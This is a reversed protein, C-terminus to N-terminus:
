LDGGAVEGAGAMRAQPQECPVGRLGNGRTGKGDAFVAGPESVAPIQRLIDAFYETGGAVNTCSVSVRGVPM